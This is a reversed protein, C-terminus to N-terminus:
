QNQTKTTCVSELFKKRNENDNIEKQQEMFHIYNLNNVNTDTNLVLM